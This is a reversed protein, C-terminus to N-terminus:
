PKPVPCQLAHLVQLPKGIGCSRHSSQISLANSTRKMGQVTTRRGSSTSLSPSTQRLHQPM